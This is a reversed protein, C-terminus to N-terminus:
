AEDKWPDKALRKLAASLKRAHTRQMEAERFGTSLTEAMEHLEEVGGEAAFAKAIIRAETLLEAKEEAPCADLLADDFDIVECSEQRTESKRAHGM